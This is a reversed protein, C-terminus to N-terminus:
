GLGAAQFYAIIQIRYELLQTACISWRQRPLHGQPAVSVLRAELMAACVAIKFKRIASLSAARFGRSPRNHSAGLKDLCFYLPGVM